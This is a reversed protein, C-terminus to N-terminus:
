KASKLEDPRVMAWDTYHSGLNVYRGGKRDWSIDWYPDGDKKVKTLKGRSFVYVGSLAQAQMQYRPQGDETAPLKSFIAFLPAEFGPRILAWKGSFDVTDGLATESKSPTGTPASAAGAAGIKAAETKLTLAEDLKGAVTLQRSLETLQAAFAARLPALKAEREIEFKSLATRYTGRLTKLVVPTDAADTAPMPKGGAIAARESKLALAEELQGNAQAMEQKRTLAEVYRVNLEFVSKEFPGTAETTVRAEYEQRAADAEPPFPDAGPANIGLLLSALAFKGVPSQM